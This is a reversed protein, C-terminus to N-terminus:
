HLEAAPPENGPVEDGAADSAPDRRRSEAAAEAAFNRSEWDKHEKGDWREVTRVAPLEKHWLLPPREGAGKGTGASPRAAQAGIHTAYVMKPRNIFVITPFDSSDLDFAAQLAPQDGAAMWLLSM